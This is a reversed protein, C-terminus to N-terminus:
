LAFGEQQLATWAEVLENLKARGQEIADTEVFDSAENHLTRIRSFAEKLQLCRARIRDIAIKAQEKTQGGARAVANEADQRAVCAVKTAESVPDVTVGIVDLADHLATEVKVSRATGACSLMNIVFIAGIILFILAM